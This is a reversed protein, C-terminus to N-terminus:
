IIESLNMKALSDILSGFSDFKIVKNAIVTVFRLSSNEVTALIIKKGIAYGYGLELLMGESIDQTDTFAFLVDSNRIQDFAKTIISRPEDKSSVISWKQNDRWYIYTAHGQRELLESITELKSKLITKNTYNRFKYCFYIKM